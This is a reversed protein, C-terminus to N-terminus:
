ATEEGQSSYTQMGHFHVPTAKSSSAHFLQVIGKRDGQDDAESTPDEEIKCCELFCMALSQLFLYVECLIFRVYQEESTWGSDGALERSRRVAELRVKEPVKEWYVEEPRGLVLQAKIPERGKVKVKNQQSEPRTSTGVDDLGDRQVIRDSDSFYSVLHQAHSSTTLRLYCTDMGKNFDVYDVGGGGGVEGAGGASGEEGDVAGGFGEFGRGFLKKLTTKNTSPHVNKVFVLCSTPYLPEQGTEGRMQRRTETKTQTYTRAQTKLSFTDTPLSPEIKRRKTHREGIEDGGGDFGNVQVVHKRLMGSRDDDNVAEEEEAEVGEVLLEDLIRRRYAEYEERLADWRHKSMTRFGFKLAEERARVRVEALARARDQDQDATLPHTQTQTQYDRDEWPWTELLARVDKLSSLVVFAFGKPRQKQTLSSSFSSFSSTPNRDLHHPPFSISQIRTDPLLPSQPRTQTQTQSLLSSPPTSTSRSYSPSVSASPLLSSIFAYIKPISTRYRVPINELYVTREEWYEKSTFGHMSSRGEGEGVHSQVSATQGWDKRRIEYMGRTSGSSSSSAGWTGGRRWDPASLVMRVDVLHSACARLAKAVSNESILLENVSSSEPYAATFVPSQSLIYNLPVFGADESGTNDSDLTAVKQRLEPSSWLAHDSIALLALSVLDEHTSTYTSDPNSSLSVDKEARSKSTTSNAPNPVTNNSTAAPKKSKSAVRRPVFPLSGSM